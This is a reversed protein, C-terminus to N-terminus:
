KNNKNIKKKHFSIEIKKHGDDSEILCKAIDLIVPNVHSVHKNYKDKYLYGKRRLNSNITRIYSVKKEKKSAKRLSDITDNSYGYLIYFALAEKEATQLKDQVRNVIEYIDLTEVLLDIKHEYSMNAVVRREIKNNKKKTNDTDM